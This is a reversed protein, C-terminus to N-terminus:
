TDIKTNRRRRRSLFTLIKTDIPPSDAARKSQQSYVNIQYYSCFFYKLIKKEENYYFSSICFSTRFIRKMNFM